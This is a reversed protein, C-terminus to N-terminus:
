PKAQFQQLPVHCSYIRAYSCSMQQSKGNREVHQQKIGWLFWNLLIQPFQFPDEVWRDETVNMSHTPSPNYSKEKPFSPFAEEVRPFQFLEWSKGASCRSSLETGTIDQNEKGLGASLCSVTLPFVQANVTHAYKPPSLLGLIAKYQGPAWLFLSQDRNFCGHKSNKDWCSGRLREPSVEASSEGTMLEANRGATQSSSTSFKFAISEALDWPSLVSFSLCYLSSRQLTSHFGSPQSKFLAKKELLLRLLPPRVGFHGFHFLPQSTVEKRSMFQWGYSSSKPGPGEGCLSIQAQSVLGGVYLNSLRAEGGMLSQYM